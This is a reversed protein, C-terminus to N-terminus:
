FEMGDGVDLVKLGHRQWMRIVRPRDDIVLEIRGKDFHANLIDEKVEDDPRHDGTERMHLSAFPVRYHNLWRLTQERYREPRGTVLHIRHQRALERVQKLVDLRPKDLRAAEFFKKWKKRGRRVFHERHSCDALTGDIDVIVDRAEQSM